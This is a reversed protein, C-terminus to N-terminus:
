GFPPDRSDQDDRYSPDSPDYRRDYRPDYVLCASLGILLFAIVLIGLWAGHDWIGYVLLFGTAALAATLVRSM